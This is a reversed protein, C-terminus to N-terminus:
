YGFTSDAVHRKSHSMSNWDGYMTHPKPRSMIGYRLADYTHDSAFRDDIDDGGKPDTPIVQLDSILQRCNDFIIIGPKGTDDDVRLLEHLRNRGAVRSGHGRDSPRFKAGEAAMEESIVPGTNGRTHFVSSDMIGYAIIEREEREIQVIKRALEAGTHKTVYLERYVVLQNWVPDIAIWLVAAHSSYGYDCTRFRRWERPIFFPECTHVSTRFEPFAAGQAITWDGDLLQRRQQESLALLNAEYRGDEALYPNDSLKAPIFKRKFLPKGAKEHGVPYLIPQGTDIDTAPFATNPPAPDIFMKKVWGHGPGGPNTTARMCLPLDAAKKTRRLRSRMYNWAFPTAYQTLEDFAIWTFDQGQYRFVDDDRELYTVWLTGGNPFVWTKDQERWKAGPYVKPYLAKMERILSRLEDNTRRILIGVFNPHHFYRVPDAILAFSKGGGAAGGYLVEQESAALFEEQPGENPRFIVDEEVSLETNPISGFDTLNTDGNEQTGTRGELRDLKKKHRTITRRAAAKAEVLRRATKEKRTKPKRWTDLREQRFTQDPNVVVKNWLIKLGAHSIPKNAALTLWAAADRLSTGDNISNLAKEILPVLKYDPRLVLPNFPDIEWGYPAKRAKAEKEHTEWKFELKQLM